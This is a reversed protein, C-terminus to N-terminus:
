EKIWKYLELSEFIGGCSCEKEKNPNKTKFCRNCIVTTNNGIRFLRLMLVTLIASTVLYFIIRRSFFEDLYFKLIDQFNISRYTKGFLDIFDPQIWYKFIIMIPLLFVLVLFLISSKRIYNKRWLRNEETRAQKIEEATKRQWM